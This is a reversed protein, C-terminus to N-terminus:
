PHPVLRTRIRLPGAPSLRAFLLWVFCIHLGGGRDGCGAPAGEGGGMGGMCRAACGSMSVDFPFTVTSSSVVPPIHHRKDNVARVVATVLGEVASQLRAQRVAAAAFCPFPDTTNSAPAAAPQNHRAARVAKAWLGPLRARSRDGAAWRRHLRPLQPGAHLPRAARCLPQHVQTLTPQPHPRSTTCGRWSLYCHPPRLGEGFLQQYWWCRAHQEPQGQLGVGMAACWQEWYLREDQQLM